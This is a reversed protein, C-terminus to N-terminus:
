HLTQEVEQLLLCIRFLREVSACIMPIILSCSAPIGVASTHRLLVGEDLAEVAAQAVLEQVLLHEVAQLIGRTLQREPSVVVVVDPRM